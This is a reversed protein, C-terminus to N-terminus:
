KHTSQPRVFLTPAVLIIRSALLEANTRTAYKKKQVTRIPKVNWQNVASKITTRMESSAVKARAHLKTTKVKASLIVAAYYLNM